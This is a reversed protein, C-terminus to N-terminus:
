AAWIFLKNGAVGNGLMNWSTKEGQDVRLKAAERTSQNATGVLICAFVNGSTPKVEIYETAAVLDIATPAAATGVAGEPFHAQSAQGLFTQAGETDLTKYFNVYANAM